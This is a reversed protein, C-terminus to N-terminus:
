SSAAQVQELLLQRWACDLDDISMVQCLAQLGRRGTVYDPLWSIQAVVFSGARLEASEERMVALVFAPAGLSYRAGVHLQRDVALQHAVEDALALFADGTDIAGRARFAGADIDLPQRGHLAISGPDEFSVVIERESLLDGHEADEPDTVPYDRLYTVTVSNIIRRGADWDASPEAIADDVVPLGASDAPPVQSVPSIRGEADLAPVWGTPAYVNEELWGRLDEIPETLRVRVPTTMQLLAAEDYRIGTPLVDGAEDRASYLGDYANKLFEGATLGEVHVPQEESVRYATPLIQMEVDVGDAPIDPVLADDGFTGSFVITGPAAVPAGSVSAVLSDVVPKGTLLVFRPPAAPPDPDGAWPDDEAYRARIILRSAPIVHWDEEGFPRWRLLLNNDTFRTEYPYETWAGFDEFGVEPGHEEEPLMTVVGQMQRIGAINRLIRSAEPSPPDAFNVRITGAELFPALDEAEGLAPEAPDLLYDDTSAEYGYGGVVGEPFLALSAGEDFARLKREVDRVDRIDWTYAAYSPDLRPLSAPGDAVMVWEGDVYRSLRCRRGALAPAGLEALRETMWGSDQDGDIQARDVVTVGVTGITARGGAMDIEQSAYRDPRALYPNAHDAATGVEWAVTEFDLEYVELKLDCNIPPM